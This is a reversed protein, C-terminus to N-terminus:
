PTMFAQQYAAFDRLDVNDNENFDVVECGPGVGELAPGTMCEVFGITDPNDIRDDGNHDAALFVVQDLLEPNTIAGAAEITRYYIKFGGPRLTATADVILKRIDLGEPSEQGRGDNDRVDALRVTTAPRTTGAARSGYRRRSCCGSSM